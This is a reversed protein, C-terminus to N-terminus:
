VDLEDVNQSGIYSGIFICFSSFSDSDFEIEVEDAFYSCEEFVEELFFMTVSLYLDGCISEPQQVV